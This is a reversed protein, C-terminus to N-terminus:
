ELADRVCLEFSKIISLIYSVGIQYLVRPEQHPLRHKKNGILDIEIAADQFEQLEALYRNEDLSLYENLFEEGAEDLGVGLLSGQSKRVIGAIAVLYLLLTEM